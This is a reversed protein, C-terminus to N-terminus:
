RKQNIIKFVELDFVLTDNALTNTTGGYGLDPPIVVTRKGGEKMGNLGYRFGEILNFKGSYPSVASIDMYAPTTIGDKYSSDFIEGNTKRGTYYVQVVDRLNVTFAGTGVEVDYYILGNSLTVKTNEDVVFAEPVTSFDPEYIYTEDDCSVVFLVLSIVALIKIKM